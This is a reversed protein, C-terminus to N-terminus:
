NVTTTDSLNEKDKKKFLDKFFSKKEKDPEQKPEKEKKKFLRSLFGKKETDDKKDQKRAAEQQAALDDQWVLKDRFYWNYFKQDNNFKVTNAAARASDLAVSDIVDVEAFMIDDGGFMVSDSTEPIIVEMPVIRKNYDKIILWESKVLGNDDKQTYPLDKRPLGDESVLAFMEPVYHNMTSDEEQFSFMSSQQTPAIKFYSQYSACINDLKCSSLAFLGMLVIASLTVRM